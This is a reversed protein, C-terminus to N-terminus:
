KLLMMRKTNTFSNAGGNAPYVLLRYFYVGSPLSTGHFTKVFNGPEQFENVLTAVERGVVDYVILTVFSAQPISFSISTTPNFPNPYNQMLQFATPIGEENEVTAVSKPISADIYRKYYIETNGDRDDRFIIHVNSGSVAISPVRSQSSNSTLPVDTGWKIGDNNSKNYMIEYGNKVIRNYALHVVSGNVALSPWYNQSNSKNLRTDAGWSSGGNVSRKYYINGGGQRSDAWVIHVISGSVALTPFESIASNNTLRTDAGWTLGGNTSRKYYIEWNGVTSDYWAVHVVSGSVGVAPHYSKGATNTLRVDTSWTVGGDISNKYYVEFNGDSNDFWVLHVNLGSASISPHMSIGTNNTLRIEPDWTIGGDISRKYYEEYNGDRNDYWVVHVYSGSVAIAPNYAISENNSLNVNDSWTLGRDTSRKYYIEWNGVGVSYGDYWVVHIVDGNTAICRANGFSTLSSSPDNTLPVETQWQAISSAAICLFLFLVLLNKM